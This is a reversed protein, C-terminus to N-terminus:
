ILLINFILLSIFICQWALLRNILLFFEFPSFVAYGAIHHDLLATETQSEAPAKFIIATIVSIESRNSCLGQTILATLYGSSFSDSNVIM